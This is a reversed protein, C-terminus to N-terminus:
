FVYNVTFTCRCGVHYPPLTKFIMDESLKKRKYTKMDKRKCLSCSRDDAMCFIQIRKTRSSSAQNLRQLNFAYSRATSFCADLLMEKGEKSNLVLDKKAILRERFLKLKKGENFAKAEKENESILEAIWWGFEILLAKYVNDRELDSWFRPFDIQIRDLDFNESSFPELTPGGTVAEYSAQFLLQNFKKVDSPTGQILLEERAFNCALNTAEKTEEEWAEPGFAPQVDTSYNQSVSPEKKPCNVPPLVRCLKRLTEDDLELSSIYDAICNDFREKDKLSLRFFQYIEKAQEQKDKSYLEVLLKPLGTIFEDVLTDELFVFGLAKREKLFKEIDSAKLNARKKVFSVFENFLQQAEEKSFKRTEAGFIKRVSDWFGM